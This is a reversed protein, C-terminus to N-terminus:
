TADKRFINRTSQFSLRRALRPVFAILIAAIVLNVAAVLLLAIYLKMGAQTLAAVAAAISLGWATLLLVTAAVTLGSIAALAFGALRSELAVMELSNVVMDRFASFATVALGSLSADTGLRPQAPVARPPKSVPEVSAVM